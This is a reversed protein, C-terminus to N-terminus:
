APDQHRAMDNAKLDLNDPHCRHGTGKRAELFIAQDPNRQQNRAATGTKRAHDFKGARDALDNGGNRRAVPKCRDYDCEELAINLENQFETPKWRAM